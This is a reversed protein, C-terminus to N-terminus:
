RFVIDSNTDKLYFYLIKAFIYIFHTPGLDLHSNPIALKIDDMSAPKKSPSQLDTLARLQLSSPSRPPSPLNAAPRKM